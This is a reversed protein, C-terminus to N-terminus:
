KKDEEEEPRKNWDFGSKRDYVRSKKHRSLRKMGLDQRYPVSPAEDLLTPTHTKIEPEISEIDKLANSTRQRQKLRRYYDTIFWIAVLLLCAIAIIIVAIVDM